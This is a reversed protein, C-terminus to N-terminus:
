RDVSVSLGQALEHDQTSIIRQTDNMKMKMKMKMKERMELWACHHALTRAERAQVHGLGLPLFTRM